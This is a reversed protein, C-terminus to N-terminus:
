PPPLSRADRVVVDGIPVCSRLSAWFFAIFACYAAGRLVLRLLEHANPFHVDSAICVILNLVLSIACRTALLKGLTWGDVLKIIANVCAVLCESSLILHLGNADALADWSARVESVQRGGGM